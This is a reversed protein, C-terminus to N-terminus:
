LRFSQHTELELISTTYSFSSRISTPVMAREVPAGSLASWRSGRRPSSSVQHISRIRSPFVQGRLLVDAKRLPGDSALDSSLPVYLLGKASWSVKKREKKYLSKQICHLLENPWSTEEPAILSNLYAIRGFNAMCGKGADIRLRTIPFSSIRKECAWAVLCKKSSSSSSLWPWRWRHSKKSNKSTENFNGLGKVIEPISLIFCM